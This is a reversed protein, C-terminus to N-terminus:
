AVIALASSRLIAACVERQWNMAHVTNNLELLRRAEDLGEGSDSLLAVNSHVHLPNTLTVIGPRVEAWEWCIGLPSEGAPVAWLARGSRIGVGDMGTCQAIAMPKFRRADRAWDRLTRPIARWTAIVMTSEQRM